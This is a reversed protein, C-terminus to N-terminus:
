GLPITAVTEYHHVGGRRTGEALVVEKVTWAGSLPAILERGSRGKHLPLEVAWPLSKPHNVPVIPTTCEFVVDRLEDLGEVAVRLWGGSRVRGFSARPPPMGDLEFRLAELLADVMGPKEFSLPRVNVLWQGEDTWGDGARPYSKLAKVASASPWVGVFLQGM